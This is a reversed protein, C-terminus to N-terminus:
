HQWGPIKARVEAGFNTILYSANHGSWILEVIAEKATMAEDATTKHHKTMSEVYQAIAVQDEEWSRDGTHDEHIWTKYNNEITKIAEIADHFESLTSEESYYSWTVDVLVEHLSTGM